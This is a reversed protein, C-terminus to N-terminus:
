PTVESTADLLGDATLRARLRRRADHLTKYLANRNTDLRDALVDIPVGEVLLALAVRRQHPTLEDLMAQRVSAALDQGEAHAEPSLGADVTPGLDDLPVERERWTARRVEVGAHLIGFKFAWTTFRSRHEFSDLKSLVSLTATDAATHIIEDRRAAGLAAAQPMRTVRHRAAHLLLEHLKAVAEDRRAGTSSLRPVWEHDPFADRGSTDSATASPSTTPREIVATAGM